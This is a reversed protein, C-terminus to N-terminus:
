SARGLDKEQAARSSSGTNEKDARSSPTSSRSKLSLYITWVFSALNIFLPIYDIPIYSYSVLDVFPWFGSGAIQVALLDRKIKAPLQRLSRDQQYCAAAFFVCTVLPGFFIQGLAAKIVIDLLGNGPILNTIAGYWFHAAPAFYLGGIATTLALRTKDIQPNREIAQASIDSACFVCAATAAKTAIPSSQLSLAYWSGLELSAARRTTMTAVLVVSVFSLM